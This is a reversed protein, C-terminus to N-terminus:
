SAEPFRRNLISNLSNQNMSPVTRFKKRFIYAYTVNDPLKGSDKFLTVVIIQLNSFYALKHVLNILVREAGGTSLSPIFFLVKKKNNM